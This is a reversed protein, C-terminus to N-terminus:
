NAIKKILTRVIALDEKRIVKRLMNRDLTTQPSADMGLVFTNGMRDMKWGDIEHVTFDSERVLVDMVDKYRTVVATKGFIAVPRTKRLVSFATRLVPTSTIFGKLQDTISM